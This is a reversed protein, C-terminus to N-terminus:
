LLSGGVCHPNDPALVRKTMGLATSSDRIRFLPANSIDRDSGSQCIREVHCLLEGFRSSVAPAPGNGSLTEKRPWNRFVIITASQDWIPNLRLRAPTIAADFTLRSLRNLIPIMHNANGLLAYTQV